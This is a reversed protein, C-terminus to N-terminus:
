PRRDSAALPRRARRGDVLELVTRLIVAGAGVATGFAVALAGEALFPAIFSADSINTDAVEICGVMIANAAAFVGLLPALRTLMGTLAFATNRFRGRWILDVVAVALVALGLLMLIQLALSTTPQMTEFIVRAGLRGHAEGAVVMPEQGVM